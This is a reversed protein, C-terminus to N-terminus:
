QAKIGAERVIRANTAADARMLRALDDASGGKVEFTQSELRQQVKPDRLIKGIEQNLLAVAEPPTGGTTLVAFWSTVPPMDIGSERLTPINPLYRTRAADSLAIGFLKQENVFQLVANLPAMSVPM